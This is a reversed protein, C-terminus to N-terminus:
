TNSFTVMFITANVDPDKSGLFTKLAVANESTLYCLLIGTLANRLVSHNACHHVVYAFIRSSSSRLFKRKELDDEWGGDTVLLLDTLDVNELYSSLFILMGYLQTTHSELELYEQDDPSM